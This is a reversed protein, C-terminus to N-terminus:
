KKYATRQQHTILAIYCLIIGSLNTSVPNFAEILLAPKVIAVDILLLTLVIGAIFIPVTSNRAIIVWLALVMESLGALTAMMEVPIGIYHLENLEIEIASLSFIKPFFGHYFFIFAITCRSVTNVKVLLNTM